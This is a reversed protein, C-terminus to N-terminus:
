KKILTRIWYALGILGLMIFPAFNTPIEPVPEAAWVRTTILLALITLAFVKSKMKEAEMKLHRDIKVRYIDVKFIVGENGIKCSSSM